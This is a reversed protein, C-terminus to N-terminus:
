DQTILTIVRLLRLLVLSLAKHLYGKGRWGGRRRAPDREGLEKQGEMQARACNTLRKKIVPEM